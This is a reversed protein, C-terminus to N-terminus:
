VAALGCEVQIGGLGSGRDISMALISITEGIGV